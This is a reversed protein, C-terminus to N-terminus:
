HFWMSSDSSYFSGVYSVMSVTETTRILVSQKHEAYFTALLAAECCLQESAQSHRTTSSSNCSSVQVVTQCMQQFAANHSIAIM